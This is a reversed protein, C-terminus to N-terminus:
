GDFLGEVSLYRQGSDAFVCVTSAAQEAMRSAAAAVAGSSIGVLMGEVSALRRCWEFATDEDVLEIHDVLGRDLTDPVFGPATGMMRHPSFVGKSIFPSEAPEVGVLRVGPNKERLYRGAGCLTGGTGLAAILLDVRGRTDRWLEPGTTRYHADPNSPSVHQGVYFYEPHEELIRRMRERAGRTGKSAPTVVLEAGFALLIRRREVSQIESMVLIARYGRIAAIWAVAIGTNGSTSEILTDGPHLRGSREADDIIGLVARDKLSMPNLFECKALVRRQPFLRSLRVLPTVGIASTLDALEGADM